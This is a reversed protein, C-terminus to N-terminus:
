FLINLMHGLDNQHFVLEVWHGAHVVRDVYITRSTVLQLVHIEASKKYEDQQM